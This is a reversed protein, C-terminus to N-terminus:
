KNPTVYIEFEDMHSLAKYVSQNEKVIAEIENLRTDFLLEAVTRQELDDLMQRYRKNRVLLEKFKKKRDSINGIFNQVKTEYQQKISSEAALMQDFFQLTLEM